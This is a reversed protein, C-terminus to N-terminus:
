TSISDVIFDQLRQETPHLSGYRTRTAILPCHLREGRIQLNPSHVPCYASMDGLVNVQRQIELRGEGVM